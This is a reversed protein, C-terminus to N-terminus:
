EWLNWSHIYAPSSALLSWLTSALFKLRPNVQSDFTKALSNNWLFSVASPSKLRDSLVELNVPLTLTVLISHDLAAKGLRLPSCASVQTNLKFWYLSWLPMIFLTSGELPPSHGSWWADLNHGIHLSWGM